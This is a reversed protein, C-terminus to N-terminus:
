NAAEDSAPQGNTANNVLQALMATMEAMQAQLADVKASAGQRPARDTSASPKIKETAQKALEVASRGANLAIDKRANSVSDKEHKYTTVRAVAGTADTLTLDDRKVTVRGSDSAKDIFYEIGAVRIVERYPGTTDNGSATISNVAHLRTDADVAYIVSALAAAGSGDYFATLTTLADVIAARATAVAEDSPRAAAVEDATLEANEAVNTNTM